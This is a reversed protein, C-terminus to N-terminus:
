RKWLGGRNKSRQDAALNGFATSCFQLSLWAEIFINAAMALQLQSDGSVSGM